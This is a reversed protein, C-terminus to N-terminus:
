AAAAKTLVVLHNNFPTSGWLPTIRLEGHPGLLREFEAADPYRTPAAKMWLTAKALLDGAVTLRFRWSRDRLGSRIVLKGGPAVREVADELLRHAAKEDFFQLIDLISVNGQHEPLGHRADHHKFELRADGRADAIGRAVAIKRPDYDLGRIPFALDHDRLFFALLGLGCGLDLLPQDQDRLEGLVAEYLPDSRLKAAVYHRDWRRPFRRALTEIAAVEM